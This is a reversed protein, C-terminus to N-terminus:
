LSPFPSLFLPRSVDIYARSPILGAVRQNEPQCEIWQAVVALAIYYKEDLSRQSRQM